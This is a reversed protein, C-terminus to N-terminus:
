YPYYTESGTRRAARVIVYVALAIFMGFFFIYITDHLVWVGRDTWTNLWPYSANLNTSTIYQYQMNDLFAFVPLLMDFMLYLLIVTLGVSIFVAVLDM